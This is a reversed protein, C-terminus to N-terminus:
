RQLNSGEDCHGEGGEREKKKGEEENKRGGGGGGERGGGGGGRKESRKRGGGKRQKKGGKGGKGGKRGELFERVAVHQQVKPNRGREDEVNDDHQEDLPGDFEPAPHGEPLGFVNGTPINHVHHWSRVTALWFQTSNFFAGRLLHGRRRRRDQVRALANRGDKRGEKRPEKRTGEKRGKKIREKREQNRGEKRQEKRQEKRSLMGEKRSEKRSLIGEKRREKRGPVPKLIL